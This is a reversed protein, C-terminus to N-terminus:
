EYDTEKGSSETLSYQNYLKDIAIKVEDLPRKSYSKGIKYSVRIASRIEQKHEQERKALLSRIFDKIAQENIVPDNAGCTKFDWLWDENKSCETRWKQDVWDETNQTTM